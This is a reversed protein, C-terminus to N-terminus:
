RRKMRTIRTRLSAPHHGFQQWVQAPQRQKAPLVVHPQVDIRLLRVTQLKREIQEFRQREIRIQRPPITEAKDHLSIALAARTHDIPQGIERLAGPPPNHNTQDFPCVPIALYLPRLDITQRVERHKRALHVGIHGIEDARLLQKRPAIHQEGLKGRVIGLSQGCDICQGPRIEGGAIVLKLAQVAHALRKIFLHHPSVLQVARATNIRRNTRMFGQQGVEDPAQQLVPSIGREHVADPIVPYRHIIQHATRERFGTRDLWWARRMGRNRQRAIDERGPKGGPPDIQSVFTHQGSQALGQLRAHRICPAGSRHHRPQIHLAFIVRDTVGGMMAIHHPM